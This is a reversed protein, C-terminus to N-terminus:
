KEKKEKTADPESKKTADIQKQLEDIKAELQAIYRNAVDVDIRCRGIHNFLDDVIPQPRQAYAVAGLLLIVVIVLLRKM